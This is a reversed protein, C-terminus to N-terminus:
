EEACSASEVFNARPSNHHVMSGPMMYMYRHVKRASFSECGETMEM